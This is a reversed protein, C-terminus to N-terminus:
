TSHKPFYSLFLDGLFCVVRNTHHHPGSLQLLNFFEAGSLASKHRVELNVKFFSFTFIKM